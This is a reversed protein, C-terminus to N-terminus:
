MSLQLLDLENRVSLNLGSTKSRWDLILIKRYLDLLEDLSFLRAQATYKGTIFSPGPLLGGTKSILLLRTQRSLMMLCLQDSEQEAALHFQELLKGPQPHKPRLNELWAFLYKSLKHESIQAGSWRKLQTATLQKKEWAVIVLDPNQAANKIFSWMEEAKKSKTLSLVEEFVVAFGEDFLSSSQTLQEIQALTTQASGSLKRITLHRERLSSIQQQLAVRSKATNDGHIIYMAM